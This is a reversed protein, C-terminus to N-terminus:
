QEVERTCAPVLHSWTKGSAIAWAHQRCIGFLKSLNAISCGSKYLSRLEIVDEEKLRANHHKEGAVLKSRFEHTMKGYNNNYKYDCWELNDVRNNTKDEDKHNIVRYNNLNPIFATAVLRHVYILKPKANKYLAAQMYGCRNQYIILLKGKIKSGKADKRDLSRVRGLNSVQYSGEYGVIDKWIEEM